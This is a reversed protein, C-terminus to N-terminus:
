RRSNNDLNILHDLGSQSSSSFDTLKRRTKNPDLLRFVEDTGGQTTPVQDTDYLHVAYPNTDDVDIDDVDIDDGGTNPTHYVREVEDRVAEYSNAEGDSEIIIERIVKRLHKESIIM